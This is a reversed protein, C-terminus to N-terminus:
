SFIGGNIQRCQSFWHEIPDSQFRATVVNEFGSDLLNEILSVQHLLTRQLTSSTQSTLAFKEFNPNESDEWSKLWQIM